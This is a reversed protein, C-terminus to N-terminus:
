GLTRLFEVLDRGEAQAHAAVAVVARAHEGAAVAELIAAHEADTQERRWGVFGSSLMYPRLTNRHTQVVLSHRSGGRQTLAAHLALDLDLLRVPEGAARRRATHLAQIEDVTAVDLASFAREAARPELTALIDFIDAVDEPQLAVVVAKRRPMGRILGELELTRFAERVPMRSVSLQEAITRQNLATGPTLDGRLIASRLRETVLDNLTRYQIPALPLEALDDGPRRRHSGEVRWDSPLM